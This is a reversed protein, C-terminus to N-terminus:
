PQAASHKNGREPGLIRFDIKSTGFYVGRDRGEAYYSVEAPLQGRNEAFALPSKSIYAEVNPKETDAQRMSQAPHASRADSTASAIAAPIHVYRGRTIKPLLCVAAIAGLAVPIWARWRMM